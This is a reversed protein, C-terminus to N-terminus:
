AADGALSLQAFRRFLDLHWKPPCVRTPGSGHILYPDLRGVGFICKQLPVLRGM